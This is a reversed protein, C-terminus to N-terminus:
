SVDVMVNSGANGGPGSPLAVAFTRSWEEDADSRRGSSKTDKSCVELTLRLNNLTQSPDSVAIERKSVAYVLVSNADSSISFEENRRRQADGSVLTGGDADWFVVFLTAAEQDWVAMVEGDNRLTRLSDQRKGSKKEFAGFSSTAPYITYELPDSLSSSPHHIYASFLDVTTPPQTSTGISSWNGTKPGTSVTLGFPSDPRHYSSNWSSSNDHERNHESSFIYGVGGHWLSKANTWNGGGPQIKKGDVYVHGSHLRQDLVSYVPPPTTSNGTANWAQTVNTVMVRQVDGGVFFWAKRWSLSKTYPNTYRMVAIGVGGETKGATSPYTVGGVFSELGTFTASSCSLPTAGYDTTTGPILNWDWSAAIDEYENGVLYTYLTGDSLHFGYPNQTNTCETNKTRNSYMKLTTVYGKGRQVMYDNSYFNRNGYLAGANADSTNKVLANYVDVMSSSNWLEGLQQIETLNLNLSGTAMQDAVAFSIFRPLSSFDWHLTGTLVNRYIMWQDGDILTEFATKSSDNASFQSNGADIELELVDNSYDKGYNGNYLLGTHQGFSGDPKIGDVKIGPEVVVEANIRGYAETILTANTTLLAVDIGIKAVDLINAGSLYSKSGNYFTDYSRASISACSSFESSSLAANFLLCSEDVLKPVLIVNSFWNTNWLGPTGCPCEDTGGEDLCAAVTFDNAFWYNMASSIVTALSSDNVWQEEGPIGGHWAASMTLIRTWHDGAPWNARQADCGTTYDIESTPWQGDPGLTSLWASINSVNTISATIFSLRGNLVTSM